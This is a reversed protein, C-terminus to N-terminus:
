HKNLIKSFYHSTEALSNITGVDSWYNKVICYSLENKSSLYAFLDTIEYEGRDSPTITKIFDFVSSDLFYLGTVALNSKPKAPKEVIKLIKSDSVEAIGYRTPNDVEKLFLMGKLKSSNFSTLEKKFSGEFVNDGAIVAFKEGKVFHEAQLVANATGRRENQVAYSVKVGWDSGDGILKVIGECNDRGIIVLVQTVGSSVLTNLAHLIMPKDYVPVLMKSTALTLPKLRTGLGAALLIGKM